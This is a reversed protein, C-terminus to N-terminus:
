KQPFSYILINTSLEYLPRKAIRVIMLLDMVLKIRLFM